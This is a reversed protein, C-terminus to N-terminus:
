SKQPEGCWQFNELACVPERNVCPSTMCFWFMCINVVNSLAFRSVPFILPRIKAATLWVVTWTFLSSNYCSISIIPCSRSYEAQVSLPRTYTIYIRVYKECSTIHFNYTSVFSKNSSVWEPLRCVRIKTIFLSGYWCAQLQRVTSFM